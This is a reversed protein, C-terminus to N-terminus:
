PELAHGDPFEEKRLSRRLSRVVFFVRRPSPANRCDESHNSRVAGMLYSDIGGWM